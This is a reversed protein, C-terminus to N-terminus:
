WSINIETPTWATFACIMYYPIRPFMRNFVTSLHYTAM